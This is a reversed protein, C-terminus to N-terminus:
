QVQPMNNNESDLAVIVESFLATVKNILNTFLISTNANNSNTQLQSKVSKRNIPAPLNIRTKPASAALTKSLPNDASWRSTPPEPPLLNSPHKSCGSYNATHDGGCLACKAPTDTQKQCQRTPHPGACKLCVPDRTCQRSSHFYQQCNYCQGPQTRRKLPEIKVRLYEITYIDYNQKSAQIIPSPTKKFLDHHNQHCGITNYNLPTSSAQLDLHIHNAPTRLHDQTLLPPHPHSLRKINPDPTYFDNELISTNDIEHLSNFLNVALKKIYEKLTKINLANRIDENKVPLRDSFNTRSGKSAISILKPLTPRCPVLM